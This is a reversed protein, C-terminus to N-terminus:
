WRGTGVDQVSDAARAPGAVRHLENRIADLRHRTGPDTSVGLVADRIEAPSPLEARLRRGAGIVELQDANAPQDVAQPIAVMPVGYWLGETCSGMGAHTIFCDAERLVAPQPVTTRLQVWDPVVGLEDPRVRGTALVLRWGTGDLADITNRYVDIRHTYATGFALLALPGDGTPPVWDRPDERRRDICPGVFRYRDGVRDAHPQLVRPILVLCRLPAGTVEEFTRSTGTHALWDDFARRYALGEPSSYIPELVEAM